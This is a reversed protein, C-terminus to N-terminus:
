EVSADNTTMRIGSAILANTVDQCSNLFETIIYILSNYKYGNMILWRWKKLVTSDVVEWIHKLLRFLHHTIITCSLAVV